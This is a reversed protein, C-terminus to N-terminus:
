APSVRELVRATALRLEAAMECALTLRRLLWLTLEAAVLPDPRPQFPQGAVPVGTVAGASTGKTLDPAEALEAASCYAADPLDPTAVSVDRKVRRLLLM